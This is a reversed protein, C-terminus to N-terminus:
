VLSQSHGDAVTRHADRNAQEILVRGSCLTVVDDFADLEVLRHTIWILTKGRSAALVSARLVSENDADLHATPEDLILVPRDALLARAVGLRQREGGSTTNGREGLVTGLGAPLHDLWLRLGVERLVALLDGDTAQPRALRLNAAVSTHFVHPDQPAWAILRRAADPDLGRLDRGDFSVRGHTPQVFGLLLLGLTTKGSGSEGVLAVREGATVTLNVHRLAPQRRSSYVVSVDDLWISPARGPAPVLQHNHSDAGGADGGSNGAPALALIRRAGGLVGALKAFSEPLNSVADASGLALFGLVAVVVGSIQGTDFAPLSAAVVAAALLGGLAVGMGHGLGRAVSAQADQRALQREADLLRAAVIAEAGFVALESAGHLLEVVLGDREGRRKSRDTGGCAGAVGTVLPFALIVIGLSVGLVLGAERDLLAAAAVTIAATSVAAAFPLAVRVYLDQLGDVDSVFRALLDGRRAGPWGGPVLPELRAFAWGRMRALARLALDHSALREGYRATGRLLAFLRVGAIAVTLTLVPPRLSATAILWAASALLGVAALKGVLGLGIALLGRCLEGDRPALLQSLRNERSTM